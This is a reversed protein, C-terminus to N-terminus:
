LNGVHKLHKKYVEKRDEQKMCGHKKPTKNNNNNNEKKIKFILIPNILFAIFNDFLWSFFNFM